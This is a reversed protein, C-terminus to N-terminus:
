TIFPLSLRCLYSCSHLVEKMSTYELTVKGVCDKVVDIYHDTEIVVGGNFDICSDLRTKLHRGQEQLAQKKSVLEVMKGKLQAEMLDMRALLTKYM